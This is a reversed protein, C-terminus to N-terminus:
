LHGPAAKRPLCCGFACAGLPRGIACTSADLQRAGHRAKTLPRAACRAVRQRLSIDRGAAKRMRVGSTALVGDRVSNRWVMRAMLNPETCQEAM